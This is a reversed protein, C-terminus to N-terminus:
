AAEAFEIATQLANNKRDKNVGLWASQLRTDSNRGLEHDVLYTVSNFAQWWSGKGFEAGPQTEVIEFARRANRSLELQKDEKKSFNPFVVNLYEKFKEESYRKSALFSAMTEYQKLKDRAIGIAEKMREADFAARHNQTAQVNSAQGLSLSLTNNCVVRIPTSRVHIGQGFKHPNVLLLYQETVDENFLAFKDNMKALGWVIQGDKLSGATHMELENREVFEEFVSFADVNQCPEWGDSVNSLFKQDNDRILAFNGTAIEKDGVRYFTPEKSVTWDLGAAKIMEDVSLDNEVKVGLGHWPVEGAYAMTEVMHAM